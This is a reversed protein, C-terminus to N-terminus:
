PNLRLHQRILTRYRSLTRKFEKKYFKSPSVFIVFTVMSPVFSILYLIMYLWADNSSKMCESVFPLILRPLALIVLVIPAILLHKHEIFQERIIQSYSRNKYIRLRQRSKMTILIIASIFNITFPILFHFIQMYSNYQRLFKSPYSIICWIRKIEDNDENREDILRRYLSDQISTGILLILLIIIMYKAIRRSHKKNFHTQKMVTFTREVAICATLWQDFHLCIRLLFDLSSCQIELFLRNTIMKMQASLLISFKLIMLISVLITIISSCLLYIGCGVERIVKNQFTIFSLCGDILGAVVFVITLILSFIVIPSQQSISLDPEIHYGLIADLSLGFESTSFQCRAGYYCSQCLCTSRKPCAKEDQFCQGDNECESQGFCNLKMQHDFRFCNSLRKGHFFYCFCLHMEDHFCSVNQCPLHYFKIRRVIHLESLTRNFLENINPCRDSSRVQKHIIVSRNSSNKIDILYYKKGELEIFLLDYSEHWFIVALNDNQNVIGYTTSRRVPKYKDENIFHGFLIPSVIIDKEFSLILKTDNKECELGSFGKPCICVYNKQFFTDYPLSICQGGNKCIPNDKSECESYNLLCRSGFTYMSCACIPRNTNALQGICRSNSNSSCTCNQKITCYEGSWDEDCYCFSPKSPGNNYRVCKGHVCKKDSCTRNQDNISPIDVIYILRHVPLFLFDIPYLTSGRYTLSRKEYFNIQISYNKTQDRSRNGYLLYLDFVTRCQDIPLYSLKEYSHIISPNNSDILFIIIEFLTKWSDSFAQFRISLSVRQNQYQCRSGYYMPPCLCTRQFLDNEIVYLDIGRHCNSQDLQRKKNSLALANQDPVSIIMPNIRFYKGSAHLSNRIQLYECLLTEIASRNIQAGPPYRECDYSFSHSYTCFQEDSSDTCQAIGDCINSLNSCLDSSKQKCYFKYQMRNQSNIRCSSLEDMGGICNIKGDNIRQFPLCILQNTEISGCPFEQSSCNSLHYSHCGLEDIGNPCNWIDNCRTYVNNCEWQECDAEDTFNEFNDYVSILDIVRDCTIQFLVDNKKYDSEVYEDECIGNENVGCDCKSNKILTHHIYKNSLQCKFYQNLTQENLISHNILKMNEDDSYPCDIVHDLLHYMSICKNSNMCQHVNTQNCLVSTFNWPHHYKALTRYLYDIIKINSYDYGFLDDTETTQNIFVDSNICTMNKFFETSFNSFYRHYYKNTYCIYPNKIFSDSSFNNSYMFIFDILFSRSPYIIMSPCTRNVIDIYENIPCSHGLYDCYSKLTYFVHRLALSCNLSTSSDEHSFLINKLEFTRDNHCSSTFSDYACRREEYFTNPISRSNIIQNSADALSWPDLCSNLITYPLGVLMICQGNKCRYEDQKCQNIELQWCDNEDIGNNRCDIKGDCIETWDLCAPLPGRDCELHTYCTIDNPIYTSRYPAYFDNMIRWLSLSRNDSTLYYFQYQCKFGFRPWTCNYFIKNALISDNISKSLQNLYLQYHEAIDMSAYWDYLHKSTINKLALQAFTWQEGKYTINTNSKTSFENMCYWLISYPMGFGYNILHLCNYQLDNSHDNIENTYYFNVQSGVIKMSLLLVFCLQSRKGDLM